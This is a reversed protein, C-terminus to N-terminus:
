ESETELVTERSFNKSFNDVEEYEYPTTISTNGKLKVSSNEPDVGTYTSWYANCGQNELTQNMGQVYLVAGLFVLIVLLDWLLKEKDNV